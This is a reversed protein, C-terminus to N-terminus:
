GRLLLHRYLFSSTVLRSDESNEKVLTQSLGSLRRQASVDLCLSYTDSGYLLDLTLLFVAFLSLIAQVSPIHHQRHSMLVASLAVTTILARWSDSKIPEPQSEACQNDAWTSIYKSRLILRLGAQNLLLQDFDRGASLKFPKEPLESVLLLVSSQFFM